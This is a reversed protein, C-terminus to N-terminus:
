VEHALPAEGGEGAGGSGHPLTVRDHNLDRVDGRVSPLEADLLELRDRDATRHADDEEDSCGSKRRQTEDSCIAKM